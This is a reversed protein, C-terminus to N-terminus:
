SDIARASPHRPRITYNWDGHFDARIINIAAMEQDSVAVGKPYRNTDLRVTLGTDTTTAGILAAM